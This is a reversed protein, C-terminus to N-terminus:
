PSPRSSRASARDSGYTGLRARLMREVHRRIAGHADRRYDWEPGPPPEPLAMTANAEFVVLRGDPAVDCDVGGLDFPLHPRIRDLALLAPAGLTAEPDALFAAELRRLAASRAMGSSFYHVKWHRSLAMHWPHWLGDVLFLRIKRHQGDPRRTGLREIVFVEDTALASAASALSVANPVRVFGEGGHGGVPRLLLPFRWGARLLRSPGSSPVLALRPWRETRATVVGEVDALRRAMEARGTARLRAPRNVVPRWSQGILREAADLAAPAGDADSVTNLVLDYAPLPTTTALHEPAILAISWANTEVIGLPTNGGGAAATVLLRPADARAAPRVVIPRLAFASERQRRARDIEGDAELLDALLLRADADNPDLAIGKALALRGEARRGLTAYARGLLAHAPADDPRLAVLRELVVAAAASRRAALLARAAVRLAEPRDAELGLLAVATSAASSRRGRDTGEM